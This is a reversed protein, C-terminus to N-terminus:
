TSTGTYAFNRAASWRDSGGDHGYTADGGLLADMIRFPDLAPPAGYRRGFDRPDRRILTAM